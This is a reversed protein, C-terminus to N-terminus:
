DSVWHSCILQSECPFFNLLSYNVCEEWYGATGAAVTCTVIFVSFQFGRLAVFPNM